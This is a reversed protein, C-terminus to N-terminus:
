CHHLATTLTVIPVSVKKQKPDANVRKQFGIMRKLLPAARGVGEGSDEDTPVEFLNGPLWGSVGFDAVRVDGSAGLLINGAKMDRHILQKDHLYKLARLVGRLITSIFIDEVPPRAQGRMAKLRHKTVDLVSGTTIPTSPLTTTTSTFPNVSLLLPSCCPCRRCVGVAVDVPVLIM